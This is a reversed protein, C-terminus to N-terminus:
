GLDTIIQSGFSGYHIRKALPSGKEPGDVSGFPFFEKRHHPKEEEDSEIIVEQAREFVGNHDCSWVRPCLGNWENFDPGDKGTRNQESENEGTQGIAERPFFHKITHHGNEQDKEKNKSKDEVRQAIIEM